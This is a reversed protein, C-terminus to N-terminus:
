PLDYITVDIGKDAIETKLMKEINGWHGGALGSGLRPAHVSAKFDQAWRCVAVLGKNLADYRIPARGGSGMGVGHQGVISAVWLDEEVQVLQAEGLGMIGTAIGPMEESHRYWALYAEKVLPWKKGLAVVFGAGFRGQDNVCHTLIKPGQGQLKTADGTVHVLPM